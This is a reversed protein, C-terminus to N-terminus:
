EPKFDFLTMLEEPVRTPRLKGTELWVWETLVEALLDSGRKVKNIREAKVGGMRTVETSISLEDGLLAPKFYTISHKRVIPLVGYNKFGEITLGFSECHARACNEAYTLYIANNVHELEDIQDKTVTIQHEFYAKSSSDELAM